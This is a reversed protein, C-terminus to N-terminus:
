KYRGLVDNLRVRVLDVIMGLSHELLRVTSRRSAELTFPVEAVRLGRRSALYLVEADFAFGDLRQRHFLELAVERRYAKAGCQTDTFQATLLHRVLSRYLLSMVARVVPGGATRSGPLYRSAVVIEHGAGLRVLFEDIISIPISLDADLYMVVEGRAALVGTRVASGKGGNRPRRLVRVRPRRACAQAAQAVTEDRSGDDICLVEYAPQRADLHECIADLTQAIWPGGNYVPVVISLAVRESSAPEGRSSMLM